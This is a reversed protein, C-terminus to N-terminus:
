RAFPTMIMQRTSHLPDLYASNFVFYEVLVALGIILVVAAIAVVLHAVDHTLHPIHLNYLM